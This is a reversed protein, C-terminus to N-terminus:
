KLSSDFEKVLDPVSKILETRPEETAESKPYGDWWVKYYVKGNKKLKGLIKKIKFKEQVTAPPMKENESVIQLQNRTYLATKGLLKYLPPQNPMIQVHEIVTPKLSWKIDSARFTGHLKKGTTNVPADLQFRVATGNPIVDCANGECRTDAFIVKYDPHKENWPDKKVGLVQNLFEIVKPLYKVWERSPEGTILEEATQRKLLPTGISKNRSEVLGQQRHRGTQAVRLNIGKKEFYSKFVGKFESGSDVQISQSPEKVIGRKYIEKIAALVTKSDVKKMPEADTKRSGVDVVVLAYKYGDDNPLMLTDVQSIMNFPITNKPIVPSNKKTDKTPRKYLQYLVEDKLSKAKKGVLFTDYFDQVDKDKKSSM